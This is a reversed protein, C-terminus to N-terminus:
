WIFIQSLIVIYEGMDSELCRIGRTEMDHNLGIEESVMSKGKVLLHADQAKAIDAFIQNAQEADEAWHVQIGNRMCNAELQALLDPLKSLCRQRIAKALDRVAKEEDADPFADKRKHRLYDMAGRFNQRLEKDALAHKAQPHFMEPQTHSM